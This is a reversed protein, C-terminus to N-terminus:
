QPVCDGRRTRDPVTGQAPEVLKRRLQAAEWDYTEGENKVARDVDLSLLHALLQQAQDLAM